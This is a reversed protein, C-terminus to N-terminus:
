EGTGDAPADQSSEEGDGRSNHQAALFAELDAKDPAKEAAQQAAQQEIRDSYDGAAPDDAAADGDGGDSEEGRYSGAQDLGGGLGPPQQHSRSQNGAFCNMRYRFGVLMPLEGWHSIYRKLSVSTAGVCADM